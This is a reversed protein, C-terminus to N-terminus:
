CCHVIAIQSHCVIIELWISVIFFPSAHAQISPTGRIHCTSYPFSNNYVLSVPTGVSFLKVCHISNNDMQIYNNQCASRIELPCAQQFLVIFAPFTIQYLGCDNHTKTYTYIHIYIYRYIYVCM